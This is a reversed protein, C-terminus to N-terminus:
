NTMGPLVYSEVRESAQCQAGTEIQTLAGTEDWHLRVNNTWGNPLLAHHAFMTNNVSM